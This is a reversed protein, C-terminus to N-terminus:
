CRSTRLLVSARGVDDGWMVAGSVSVGHARGWVESGPIVGLRNLAARLHAENQVAPGVAAVARGHAGAAAVRLRALLRVAAVDRILEGVNGDQGVVGVAHRLVRAVEEWTRGRRRRQDLNIAPPTQNENGTNMQARWREYVSAATHTARRGSSSLGTSENMTRAVSSAISACAREEESMRMVIRNKTSTGV